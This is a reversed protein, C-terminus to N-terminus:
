KPELIQRCGASSARTSSSEPKECGTLAGLATAATGLTALDLLNRRTLTTNM